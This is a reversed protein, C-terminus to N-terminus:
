ESAGLTLHRVDIGCELALTKVDEANVGAEACRNLAEVALRYREEMLQHAWLEQTDDM